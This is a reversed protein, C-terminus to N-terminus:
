SLLDPAASPPSTLSSILRDRHAALVRQPEGSAIVRGQELVLVRDAMAFVEELAHTVMLIPVNRAHNWELVDDMIKLKTDHDLASLPEDLLLCQPNRVLARALAVRQREGGSISSANKDALNEIHFTEMSRQAEAYRERAPKEHLGYEVNARVTMHPFLAADQFIYGVGRQSAPVNVNHQSDFLVRDGMVVAGDEPDQVGAICELWTSKGGGSPGFIATVGPGFEVDVELRFYALDVQRHSKRLRTKLSTM